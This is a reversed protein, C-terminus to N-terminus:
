LLTRQVFVPRVVAEIVVANGAIKVCQEPATGRNNELDTEAIAFCEDLLRRLVRVLVEEADFHMFRADAMAQDLRSLGAHRVELQYNMIGNLHEFLLHRLACELTDVQVERVRPRLFAM